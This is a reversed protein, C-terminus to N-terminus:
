PSNQQSTLFSEDPLPPSLQEPSSSDVAKLPAFEPHRIAVQNTNVKTVGTVQHAVDVIKKLLFPDSVSGTLIIQSNSEAVHIPNNALLPKLILDAKLTADVRLSLNHPQTFTLSNKAEPSSILATSHKLVAYRCAALVLLSNLMVVLPLLLNLNFRSKMM